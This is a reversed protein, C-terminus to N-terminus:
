GVLVDYNNSLNSFVTNVGVLTLSDVTAVKDVAWTQGATGTDIDQVYYIDFHDIGSAPGQQDTGLVVVARANDNLQITGALNVSFDNATLTQNVGSLVVLSDGDYVTGHFTGGTFNNAVVTTGHTWTSNLSVANGNAVFPQFPVAHFGLHGDFVNEGLFASFDMKDQNVPAPDGPVPAEWNFGTITDFGQNDVKGQLANYSINGFELTDIGVSDTITITDNGAGGIITVHDDSDSTVTITDNGIGGNVTVQANAGTTRLTITDNGDQGSVIGNNAFVSITDDGGNGFVDAHPATVTITDNQGVSSSGDDGHVLAYSNAYVTITDQGAGGWVETNNPSHINVGQAPVIDYWPTNVHTVGSSGVVVTDDGAHADLFIPGNDSGALINDNGASGNITEINNLVVLGAVAQSGAQLIRVSDHDNAEDDTVYEVNKIDVESHSDEGDHGVHVMDLGLGGDVTTVIPNQRNGYHYDELGIYDNGAGLDYYVGLEMDQLTDNGQDTDLRTVGEYGIGNMMVNNGTNFEIHEISNLTVGGGFQDFLSENPNAVAFNLQLTDTGGYGFASDGSQLQDLSDATFLDNSNTGVLHDANTTFDLATEVSLGYNLNFDILKNPTIISTFQPETVLSGNVYVLVNSNRIIRVNSSATALLVPDVTVYVSSGAPVESDVRILFDATSTTQNIITSNLEIRWTQADNRSAALEIVELGTVNRLDGYRVTAGDVIRLTDETSNASLVADDYRLTNFSNVTDDDAVVIDQHVGGNLRFFSGPADLATIDVTQTGTTLPHNDADLTDTKVTVTGGEASAVLEDTLNFYINEDRLDFVEFGKTQHTESQQILGPVSQGDHNTFVMTDTGTGGLVIDDNEIDDARLTISDNGAGLDTNLRHDTSILVGAQDRELTDIVVTDVGAGGRITTVADIDGRRTITLENHNGALDGVAGLDVNQVGIGNINIVDNGAGGLVTNKADGSVLLTDNGDGLDFKNGGLWYNIPTTTTRNDAGADIVTDNGDGGIVLDNLAGTHIEDNGAGGDVSSVGTGTTVWDDGIGLNVQKANNTTGFNIHDNWPEFLPNTPPVTTNNVHNAGTYFIQDVKDDVGVLGDNSESMDLWLNANLAGADVKWINVNLPAVVKLNANGNIIVTQLGTTRDAEVGGVNLDTVLNDNAPSVPHEPRVLSTINIQSVESQGVAEYKDGFNIEAGRIEQLTLDVINANAAAHYANLDYLFNHTENTDVIRIDTDVTQIDSFTLQAGDTEFSELTTVGKTGSLDLTSGENATTLAKVSITEIDTTNIGTLVAGTGYIAVKVQDNGGGGNATDGGQLTDGTIPDGISGTFTDNGTSGELNDIATTYAKVLGPTVPVAPAHANIYDAAENAPTAPNSKTKAQDIIDNALLVTGHNDSVGNLIAIGAKYAPDNVLSNPHSPNVDNVNTSPNLNSDTGLQNAFYIGVNSKNILFDQRAKADALESLSLTPYNTSNVEITLAAEVFKTLFEARSMGGSIQGVWYGIGQSDGPRGLVNIYIQQVFQNPTLSGYFGTFSPHSTFSNSFAIKDAPSPNDPLAAQWYNYGALDPAREFGAVYM